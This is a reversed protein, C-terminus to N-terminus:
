DKDLIEKFDFNKGKLFENFQSDFFNLLNKIITIDHYEKILYFKKKLALLIDEVLYEIKNSVM